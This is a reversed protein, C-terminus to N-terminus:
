ADKLKAIKIRAAANIERRLESPLFKFNGPYSATFPRSGRRILPVIASLSSFHDVFERRVEPRSLVKTISGVGLTGMLYGSVRRNAVSEGLRYSKLKNLRKIVQGDPTRVLLKEPLPNYPDYHAREHAVILRMAQTVIRRDRKFLGNIRSMMQPNTIIVEPFVPLTSFNFTANPAVHLIAGMDRAIREFARHGVTKYAM